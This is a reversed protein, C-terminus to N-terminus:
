PAKQILRDIIKEINNWLRAVDMIDEIAKHIM